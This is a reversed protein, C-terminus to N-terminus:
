WGCRGGGGEWERRARGVRSGWGIKLGCLSVTCTRKNISFDGLLLEERTGLGNSKEGKRFSDRKTEKVSARLELTYKRLIPSIIRALRPKM